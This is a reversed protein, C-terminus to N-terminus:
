GRLATVITTVNARMMTLYTDGASGPPGLADTYLTPALAVHAERAIQEMAKPNSVNEAFITPVGAARIREVLRAIEGANAESSETSVGPIATGLITFGYRAAFYGFTDHTTVLTRQGPPVTQVQEVIWADLARLKGLYLDANAAYTSAGPADAQSLADRVNEVIRITNRVDHWVHPDVEDQDRNGTRSPETQDTEQRPEIGRTAVVRRAKSGSGRYLRDLWPEFGLGNEIIIRASALRVADSPAPNFSHSDQGAAVLAFVAVREGGVNQVLDALISNTAAVTLAAGPRVGGAAASSGARNPGLSQCASLALLALLLVASVIRMILCHIM